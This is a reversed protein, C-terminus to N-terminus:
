RRWQSRRPSRAWGHVLGYISGCARCQFCGDAVLLDVCECTDLEAAAQVGSLTVVYGCPQSGYTSRTVYV